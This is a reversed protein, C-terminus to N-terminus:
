PVVNIRERIRLVVIVFAVIEAADHKVYTLSGVIPDVRMLHFRPVSVTDTIALFALNDAPDPSIPLLHLFVFEKLFYFLRLGKSELPSTNLVKISTRIEDVRPVVRKVKLLLACPYALTKRM